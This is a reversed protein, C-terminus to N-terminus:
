ITSMTMATWKHQVAGELLCSVFAIGGDNAFFTAVSGMYLCGFYISMTNLAHQLNFWWVWAASPSDYTQDGNAQALVILLAIAVFFTVIKM